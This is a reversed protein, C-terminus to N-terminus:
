IKLKDSIKSELYNKLKKNNVKELIDNAFAHILIAKAAEEDIGRSKLYFLSSEDLAGTSAGHTCKVDDAFIQLEPKSNMTADDSLLVNKNLQYSNTKQANERVIVKGNFVGISNGKLIGKYIERSFCNSVKHDITSHNDITQNKGALFLGYLESEAFQEEFIVNLNNRIIKGGFDFVFNTSKSCKFQHINTSGVNFSNVNEDHIKYYKLRSNQGVNIETIVNHFNALDGFGFYSEIIEAESNQELNIFVRKQTISNDNAVFVLQLSLKEGSKVNIEIKEDESMLHKEAFVLRKIDPIKGAKGSFESEYLAHLSTFRWEEDKITPCKIDLLKIEKGKM